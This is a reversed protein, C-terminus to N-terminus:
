APKWDRDKAMWMERVLMYVTGCLPCEILGGHLEKRCDCTDVEDVLTRANPTLVYGCGRSSYQYSVM